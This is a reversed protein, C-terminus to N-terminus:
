KSQNISSQDFVISTVYIDEYFFLLMFLAVIAM